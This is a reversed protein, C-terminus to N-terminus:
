GEEDVAMSALSLLISVLGGEAVMLAAQSPSVWRRERQHKEPWDELEREVEFLYADVACPLRKGSPMVKFYHFTGLPKKHITGILGAEEFAENAAVGRANLKKEPWGKPVVWRRTERSTILMVQLHGDRIRVPIAAYQRETAECPTSPPESVLIPAAHPLPHCRTSRPQDM